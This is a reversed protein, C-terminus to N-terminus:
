VRHPKLMRVLECCAVCVVHIQYVQTRCSTKQRCAARHFPLSSNCGVFYTAWRWYALIFHWNPQNASTPWLLLLLLWVTVHDDWIEHWLSWGQVLGRDWLAMHLWSSFDRWTEGMITLQRKKKFFVKDTGLLFLFKANWVAGHPLIWVRSGHWSAGGEQFPSFWMTRRRHLVLYRTHPELIFWTEMAEDKLKTTTHSQTTLCPWIRKLWNTVFVFM